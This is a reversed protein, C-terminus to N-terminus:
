LGEMEGCGGAPGASTSRGAAESVEEEEPPFGNMEGCGETQGLGTSRGATDSPERGETLFREGEAAIEPPVSGEFPEDPESPEEEETIFGDVEDCGEAHGSGTSMGAVESIDEEETPWGDVTDCGEDRPATAPMEDPGRVSEEKPALEGDGDLGGPQTERGDRCISTLRILPLDGVDDPDDPVSSGGVSRGFGLNRFRRLGTRFFLRVIERALKGLDSAADDEILRPIIAALSTLM